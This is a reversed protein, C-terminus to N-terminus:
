ALKRRTICYYPQIVIGPQSDNMWFPQFGELRQDGSERPQHVPVIEYQDVDLVINTADMYRSNEYGAVRALSTVSQLNM